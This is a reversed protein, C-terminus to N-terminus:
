KSKKEDNNSETLTQKVFEAFEEDTTEKVMEVFEEDKQLQKDTTHKAIKLQYFGYLAMSLAVIYTLAYEKYLIIGFIATIITGMILATIAIFVPAMTVKPVKNSINKIKNLEDVELIKWTVEKVKIAYHKGTKLNNDDKTYCRYESILPIEKQDSDEIKFLMFTKKNEIKKDVLKAKYYKPKKLFSSIIMLDFGLFITITIVPLILAVFDELTKKESQAVLISLTVVVTTFLILIIILPLVPEKDKRKVYVKM